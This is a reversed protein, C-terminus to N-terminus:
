KMIVKKSYKETENSASVIYVGPMLNNKTDISFNFSGKEDRLLVNSMVRNGLADFVALTIEKEKGEPCNDLIVNCNGPCPNPYVSFTCPSQSSSLRSVAVPNYTHTKGDFDTQVLRYYSVGELPDTDRWSYNRSTSINGAGDVKAIQTFSTGNGSREITYFDNDKESATTWKMEVEKESSEATFSLLEVPLVVTYHVKIQINDINATKKTGTLTSRKVAIAVGFNNDDNINADTWALGWLDDSAGYTAVGDAAPWSADSKHETGGVVGDKIIKVSADKLAGSQGNREIFVEIGDITAGIPIAFGFKTAELYDTSDADDLDANAYADDSTKGSGTAKWKINGYGSKGIKGADQPGVSAFLFLLIVIPVFLASM